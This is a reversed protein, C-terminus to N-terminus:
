NQLGAVEAKEEAVKRRAPFVAAFRSGHGPESSIDLRGQHRNLVHKVIALGLGTGGTERSRSHDVRYFRETLRPLHHAEIGIGSDEVAFVPDGDQEAWYLGIQGGEPTYRVANSVLNGFASRLEERSAMLRAASDVHLAIRHRGASLSLAEQYIERLLAPVDVTEERVPNQTSELRSLTLLDEVLRQMRKTQDMMMLLSRQMMAPEAQGKPLDALTELFGGVVTLPTRLEHSVNAVFDRRMTELREWRTIDRCIILRQRDGYPVLQMSLTLDRNHAPKLRLPEKYNQAELYAAFEPQRVLYAIPQGQDRRVNIGFYEEALPNCWEIRGADDLIVVAEPMAAGAMQFRALTASLQSESQSQRRLMRALHSFTQEWIGSGGPLTDHGPNRLWRELAALNRLQHYLLILLLGSFFLLAEVAGFMPWVVLAGLVCLTLTLLARGWFSLM